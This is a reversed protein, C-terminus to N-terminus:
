YAVPANLVRSLQVSTVSAGAHMGQLRTMTMMMMLLLLLLLLTQSM